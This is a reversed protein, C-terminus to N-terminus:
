KRHNSILSQRYTFKTSTLAGRSRGNLTTLYPLTGVKGTKCYMGLLLLAQVTARRCRGFFPLSTSLPYAWVDSFVKCCQIELSKNSKKQPQRLFSKPGKKDLLPCTPSKAGRIKILLIKRLAIVAVPTGSEATGFTRYITIIPSSLHGSEWTRKARLVVGYLPVTHLLEVYRCGRAGERQESAAGVHRGVVM